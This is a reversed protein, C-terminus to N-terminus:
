IRKREIGGPQCGEVQIPAEWSPETRRWWLKWVAWESVLVGWCASRTEHYDSRKKTLIIMNARLSWKSKCTALMENCRQQIDCISGFYMLIWNWGGALNLNDPSALLVTSKQVSNNFQTNSSKDAQIRYPIYDFVAVLHQSSIMRNRPRCLTETYRNEKKSNSVM